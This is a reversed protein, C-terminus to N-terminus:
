WCSVLVTIDSAAIVLDEPAIRAENDSAKPNTGNESLFTAIEAARVAYKVDEPLARSGTEIPLLMGSVAGSPAMVPGGIDGDLSKLSLRQVSADGELSKLDELTGYTLTPGALAGQYSYGSVAVDSRLRATATSLAAFELPVLDDLPEVLAFRDNSAVVQADFDGDLTLRECSQVASATTIVKGTESVYFGSRSLKPRRLQLGSLLDISQEADAGVAPDLATGLSEVSDQMFKIVRQMDEAKSPPYVLTFGHIQGDKLSAETHSHLATNQGTLVFSDAKKNREGEFPVIELTQMIEYLGFLTDRDGYQSILLVQIGSNDKPEYHVFPPDYKAFQVLEAPMTISIGAKTDIVDGLGMAKLADAYDDAIAARQKSTMVGTAEYGNADQWASMSARTGRGYAGDLAATYFGFWQLLRQLEVRQERSMLRESARAERPTEDLDVPEPTVEPEAPTPTAPQVNTAGGIPWFKRGYPRTDSLYSDSPIVGSARLNALRRQAEIETYPGLALAYWGSRLRFGNVDSLAGGYARAREEAKSLTPHAEVQVYTSQQSYGPTALGMAVWFVMLFRRVMQYDGFEL